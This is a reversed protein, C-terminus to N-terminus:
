YGAVVFRPIEFEPPYVAPWHQTAGKLGGPKKPIQPVPMGSPPVATRKSIELFFSRSEDLEALRKETLRKEQRGSM